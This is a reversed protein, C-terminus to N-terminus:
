SYSYSSQKGDPRFGTGTVGVITSGDEKTIKIEGVEVSFVM